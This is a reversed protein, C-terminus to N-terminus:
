AAAPTAPSRACCRTTARAPRASSSTRRSAGPGIDGTAKGLEPLSVNHVMTGTNVVRLIGGTPPLDVMTPSMAFESLEVTVVTTPADSGSAADAGSDDVLGFMALCLAGVAVVFAFWGLASRETVSM